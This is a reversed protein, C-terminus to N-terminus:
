ITFGTKSYIISVDIYHQIGIINRVKEQDLESAYPTSSSVSKLINYSHMNDCQQAIDKNSDSM